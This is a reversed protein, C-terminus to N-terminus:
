DVGQIQDAKVWGRWGGDLTTIHYKNTAKANSAIHSIKGRFNKFTGFPKSGFSDYFYKGNVIVTDGIALGAKARSINVPVVQKAATTAATTANNTSPKVVLQTAKPNKYEILELTYYLDSDCSVYRKKISDIIVDMDIGCESVIFRVPIQAKQLNEFYQYYQEPTFSGFIASIPNIIYPPIHPDLFDRLVTTQGPFFSEVTITSLKVGKPIIVEGLKVVNTTKNDSATTVEIVEPNVPLVLTSSFYVKAYNLIESKTINGSRIDAILQAVSQAIPLFFFKISM